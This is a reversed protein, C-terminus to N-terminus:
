PKNLCKKFIMKHTKGNRVTCQVKANVLTLRCKSGYQIQNQYKSTCPSGQSLGLVITKLVKPFKSLYSVFASLFMSNFKFGTFIKIPWASVVHTNSYSNVMRIGLQHISCQVYNSVIYESVMNVYMYYNVVCCPCWATTSQTSVTHFIKKSGPVRYNCSYMLM